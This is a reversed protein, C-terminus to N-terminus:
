IIDYTFLVSPRVGYVKALAKIQEETPIATGNEYKSLLSADVHKLEELGLEKAKSIAQRQTYGNLLRIEALNNIVNFKLHANEDDKLVRNAKKIPAFCNLGRNLCEQRFNKIDEIDDTKYFGKGNSSRILIIDTGDDLRSLEHLILRVERKNVQWLASLFDYGVAHEKGFPIDNWYNILNENLTTKKM